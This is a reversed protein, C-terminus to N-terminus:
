EDRLSDVPNANAAKLSQISISIIMVMFVLLAAIGFMWWKLEIRIYYDELWKYMLYYSLPTAVVFGFIALKIFDKNILNILSIISAGLVKRIGIEKTRQKVMLAVLSLIGIATLLISLASSAFFLGAQQKEKQYMLEIKEDAFNYTFEKGPYMKKWTSEIYALSAPINNNSIRIFANGSQNIYPRLVSNATEEKFTTFQFDEVIGIVNGALAGTFFSTDANNINLKKAVSRTIIIPTQKAIKQWKEFSRDKEEDNQKYLAQLFIGDSEKFYRGQILKLNLTQALEWDTNFFNFAIEKTSDGPLQMSSSGGYFNGISFFKSAIGVQHIYPSNLLKEKFIKSNTSIGPIILLYDKDFGMDRNRMFQFQSYMVISVVTLLIALGFQFVSLLKQPSISIKISQSKQKFLEQVNSRHIISAPYFVALLSCLLSLGVVVILNKLNFLIELSTDMGLLLCFKPWVIYAIIAAIPLALIFYLIAETFLQLNLDKNKAGFVKRVGIEKIKPLTKAISLNIYNICAILLILFASIGFMYIYKMEQPNNSLYEVKSGQLHIDQLNLLCIKETKQLGNKYLFNNLKEELSKINTNPKTLIYLKDWRKDLDLSQISNTKLEEGILMDASFHSQSPFDDIVAKVVKNTFSDAYVFVKITQNIPSQNPFLKKATSETIVVESPNKIDKISGDLLKLNFVKFFNSDIIESTVNLMKSNVSIENIDTIYSDFSTSYEIEPFEQELYNSLNHYTHSFYEMDGTSKDEIVIRYVRDSNSFYRDYNTEFQIFATILAVAAIAVALGIINVLSFFQNNLFGRWTIKIYNKIM